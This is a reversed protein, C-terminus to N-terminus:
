DRAKYAGDEVVIVRHGRFHYYISIKAWIRDVELSM